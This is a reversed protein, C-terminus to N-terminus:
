RELSLCRYARWLLLAEEGVEPDDFELEVVCENGGSSTGRGNFRFLFRPNPNDCRSLFAEVREVGILMEDDDAIPFHFIAM